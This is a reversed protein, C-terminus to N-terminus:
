YCYSFLKDSVLGRVGLFIFGYFLYSYNEANSSVFPCSERDPIVDRNGGGIHDLNYFSTLLFFLHSEISLGQVIIFAVWYIFGTKMIM